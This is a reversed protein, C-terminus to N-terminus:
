SRGGRGSSLGRGRGCCGFHERQRLADTELLQLRRVILDLLFKQALVTRERTGETGNILIAGAEDLPVLKLSCQASDVEVTNPLGDHEAKEFHHVIVVVVVPLRSIVDLILFKHLEERGVVHASEERVRVLAVVLEAVLLCDLRDLFLRGHFSKVIRVHGRSFQKLCVGHDLLLDLHLVTVKAFCELVHVGVASAEDVPILELERDLEHAQIRM